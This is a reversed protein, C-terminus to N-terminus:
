STGSNGCENELAYNFTLIAGLSGIIISPTRLDGSVTNFSNGFQCGSGSFLAHGTTTHGSLSSKGCSGSWIWNANSGNVATMQGLSSTFSEQFTVQATSTLFSVSTLLCFLAKTFKIKM